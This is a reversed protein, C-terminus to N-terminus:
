ARQALKELKATTQQLDKGIQLAARTFDSRAKQRDRQAPLLRQKAESSSAAAASRLRISEVCALFESTRNTAPM